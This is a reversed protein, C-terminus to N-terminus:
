SPSGPKERLINAMLKRAINELNSKTQLLVKFSRHMETVCVDVFKQPKGAIRADRVKYAATQFDLTNVFLNVAVEHIQPFYLSAIARIKETPPLTATKKEAKLERVTAETYFVAANKAWGAIKHIDSVVAFLNARLDANMKEKAQLRHQRGILIFSVLGTLASSLLSAAVVIIAQAHEAFFSSM